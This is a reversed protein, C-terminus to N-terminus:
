TAKRWMHWESPIADKSITVLGCNMKDCIPRLRQDVFKTSGGLVLFYGTQDGIDGLGQAIFGSEERIRKMASIYSDQDAELFADIIWPRDMSVETEGIKRNRANQRENQFYRSAEMAHEILAASPECIQMRWNWHASCRLVGPTSAERLKETQVLGRNTMSWCDVALERIIAAGREDPSWYGVKRATTRLAHRYFVATAEPLGFFADDSLTGDSTVYFKGENDPRSFDVTTTM